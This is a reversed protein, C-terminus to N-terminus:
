SRAVGIDPASGVRAGDPDEEAAEPTPPAPTPGSQTMVTVAIVYLVALPVVHMTMRALSDGYGVRYAGERLYALLFAVPIFTTLPFRLYQQGPVQFLVLAALVLGALGVVSLGWRGSGLVLNQYTAVISDRLVDPQRVALALLALWLSVEVAWLVQRPWAVVYRWRLVLIGALLAAGAPVMGWVTIPVEAGRQLHAWAMFGHWAATSIGLAAVAIARHRWPIQGSLVTPLLALGAMLQGEPRTVVLAPIALVQMLMLANAPVTRRESALLWGSGVIVLLLAAVLLHANIYFFSFVYRNNSLLLVIGLVAFLAVRRRDSGGAGDRVGVLFFWVLAALTSAALLSTLSRLYYEDVLNAPAHLLPLGILRKTLDHTSMVSRYADDALLRGAMLYRQSDTHWKVLNAARLIVVVAALAALCGVAHPISVRVDHGRVFRAGWWATPLAVTLVLTLVPTTPLGTVVQVFGIVIQVCLGALFGLPPLAWGRIGVTRMLACGGLLVAAVSVLEVFM